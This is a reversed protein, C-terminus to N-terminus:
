TEEPRCLATLWDQVAAAAADAGVVHQASGRPSSVDATTVVRVVVEDVSRGPSRAASLYCVGVQDAGTQRDASMGGM